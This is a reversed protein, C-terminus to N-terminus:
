YDHMSWNDLFRFGMFCNLYWHTIIFRQEQLSPLIERFFINVFQFRKQPIGDYRILVITDIFKRM